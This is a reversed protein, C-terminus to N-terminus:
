TGSLGLAAAFPADAIGRVHHSARSARSGAPLAGRADIGTAVTVVNGGAAVRDEASELAAVLRDWAPIRDMNQVADWSYRGLLDLSEYRGRVGAPEEPTAQPPRMREFRLRDWLRLLHGGSRCVTPDFPTGDSRDDRDILTLRDVRTGLGEALAAALACAGGAAAVDLPGAVLDRLANAFGDVWAGEMGAEPLDRFEVVLFPRDDVAALEPLIARPGVPFPPLVLCPRGTEGGIRWVDVAGGQWRLAVRRSSLADQAIAPQAPLGRAAEAAAKAEIAEIEHTAGPWRRLAPNAAAALEIKLALSDAVDLIFHVPVTVRALAGEADYDFAAHYVAAYSDHRAAIEGAGRHLFDPSPIACTARIRPEKSNWPWYIFQERYRYWLWTLHGGDWDPTALPPAYSTVRQSSEEATYIPFGYILVAAVREPAALAIETAVLAGTHQGYFVAKEVGLRDLMALIIGAMREVTVLGGGLADSAGLGPLDPAICLFDPSLRAIRSELTRASIPAQHLLVIPAGSGATRVHLTLDGVDVYASQM